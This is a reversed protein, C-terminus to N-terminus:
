TQTAADERALQEALDRRVMQLLDASPLDRDATKFLGGANRIIQVPTVLLGWPFGWWGFLGSTAIARLKLKTGCSTCCVVPTSKWQTMVLASWVTHTTHVDVPGRGGCRFCTGAHVGRAHEAVFEDPLETAARLFVAQDRCKEKCFLYGGERVGGFLITTGCQDCKAM